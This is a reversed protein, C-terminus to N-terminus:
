GWNRPDWLNSSYQKGIKLAKNIINNSVQINTKNIIEDLQEVSDIVIVLKCQPMLKFICGKSM